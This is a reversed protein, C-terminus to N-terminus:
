PACIGKRAAETLPLGPAAARFDARTVALDIAEVEGGTALVRERRGRAVERFGLKALVRLSGHNGLLVQTEVRELGEAFAAALVAAAAETAYGRGQARPAIWYGLDPARGVMGAPAGDDILWEPRGAARLEAIWRRVAAPPNPHPIRTTWRSVELPTSGDSLAEADADEPPRLRLRPTTLVRPEM